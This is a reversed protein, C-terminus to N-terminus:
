GLEALMEGIKSVTRWNRATAQVGLCKETAGALRSRGIGHPAYLYFAADTLLFKEGGSALEDMRATNANRATQQLFWVHLFKPEVDEAAFVNAATVANFETATLLVVPPRFGYASEVASAISVPLAAAEGAYTFVANGSQICTAVNECGLTALLERFAQMPLINNGGVNIGRLLVVFATM